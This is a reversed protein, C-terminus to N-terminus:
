VVSLKYYMEDVETNIINIPESLYEIALYRRPCPEDKPFVSDFLGLGANEMTLYRLTECPEGNEPVLVVKSINRKSRERDFPGTPNKTWAVTCLVSNKPYNNPLLATDVARLLSGISIEKKSGNARQIRTDKIFLWERVTRSNIQTEMFGFYMGYTGGIYADDPREKKMLINYDINYVNNNLTRRLCFQKNELNDYILSWFANGKRPQVLQITSLWTDSAGTEEDSGRSGGDSGCICKSEWAEDMINILSDHSSQNSGM